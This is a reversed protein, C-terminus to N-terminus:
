SRQTEGADAISGKFQEKSSSARAPDRLEIGSLLWRISPGEDTWRAIHTQVPKEVREITASFRWMRAQFATLASLCPRGAAASTAATM